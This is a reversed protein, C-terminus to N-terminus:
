ARHTHKNLYDEGIRVFEVWRKMPFAHFRTQNSINKWLSAALWRKLATREGLLAFLEDRIKGADEGNVAPDSGSSERWYQELIALYQSTISRRGSITRDKPPLNGRWRLCGISSVLIDVRRVFKFHCAPEATGGVDCLFDQARHGMEKQISRELASMRKHWDAALEQATYPALSVNRRANFGWYSCNLARSSLGLYTREVLLKKLPEKSGLFDFVKDIASNQRATTNKQPESEGENLWQKLAEAYDILEQRRAACIQYHLGFATHTSGGIAACLEHVRRPYDYRWICCFDAMVRMDMQEPSLRGLSRELDNIEAIDEDPGRYSGSILNGDCYCHGHTHTGEMLHHILRYPIGEGKLVNNRPTLLSHEM